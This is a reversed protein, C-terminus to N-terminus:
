LIFHKCATAASVSVPLLIWLHKGEAYVSINYNGSREVTVNRWGLTLSPVWEEVECFYLGSNEANLNLLTLTFNRPSPRSFRLGDGLRLQLTSKRDARFIPERKHKTDKQFFWTVQFESAASSQRTIQCPVTFNQSASVNM